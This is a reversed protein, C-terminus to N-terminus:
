GQASLKPPKQMSLSRNGAEFMWPVLLEHVNLGEWFLDEFERSSCPIESSLSLEGSTGECCQCAEGYEDLRMMSEKQEHAPEAVHVQIPSPLLPIPM